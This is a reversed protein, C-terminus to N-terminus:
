EEKGKRIKEFEKVFYEAVEEEYRDRCGQNYPYGCLPCKPEVVGQLPDFDQYWVSGCGKCKM